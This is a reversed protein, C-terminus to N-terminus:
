PPPSPNRLPLAGDRFASSLACREPPTFGARGRVFGAPDADAAHGFSSANSIITISTPSLGCAPPFGRAHRSRKHGGSTSSPRREGDARSARRECAAWANAVAALGGPPPSPNRLRLAGDRFASSLACREPPTFGATGVRDETTRALAHARTQAR